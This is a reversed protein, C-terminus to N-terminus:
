RSAIAELRFLSPRWRGELVVTIAVEEVKQGIIMETAEVHQPSACNSCCTETKWRNKNSIDQASCTM